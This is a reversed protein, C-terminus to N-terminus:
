EGRLVTEDIVGLRVLTILYVDRLQSQGDSSAEQPRLKLILPRDLISVCSTLRM